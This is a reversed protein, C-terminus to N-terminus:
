FPIACSVTAFRVYHKKRYADSVVFHFGYFPLEGSFFMDLFVTKNPYKRVIKVRMIDGGIM